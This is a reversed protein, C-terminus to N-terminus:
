SLRVGADPLRIHRMGAQSFTQSQVETDERRYKVNWSARFIEEAPSLDPSYLGTRCRSEGPPKAYTNMGRTGDSTSLYQPSIVLRVTESRKLEVSDVSFGFVIECKLEDSCLVTKRKPGLPSPSTNPHRESIAEEKCPLAKVTLRTWLRGAPCMCHHGGCFPSQEKHPAMMWVRLVLQHYKPQLHHFIKLEKGNKATSFREM